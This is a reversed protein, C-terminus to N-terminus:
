NGLRHFPSLLLPRSLVPNLPFRFLISPAFCMAYPVLVRGLGIFFETNQVDKTGVEM